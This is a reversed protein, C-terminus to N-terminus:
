EEKLSSNPTAADDRALQVKVPAILLHTVSASTSARILSALVSKTRAPVETPNVRLGDAIATRLMSCGNKKAMLACDGLPKTPVKSSARMMM